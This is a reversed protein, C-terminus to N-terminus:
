PTFGYGATSILSVVTSNQRRPYTYTITIGSPYKGLTMEVDCYSDLVIPYGTYHIGLSMSCKLYRLVRELARWHDDGSNLVFRSLKSLAFSTDPRTASALYMLLGIIQFYRL